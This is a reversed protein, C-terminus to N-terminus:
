SIKPAKAAPLCSAYKTNPERTRGVRRDITLVVRMGSITIAKCIHSIAVYNQRSNTNSQKVVRVEIDHGQEHVEIQPIHGSRLAEIVENVDPGKFDCKCGETAHESKYTRPDIQNIKCIFENCGTHDGQLYPPGLTSASYLLHVQQTTTLTGIVHPCWGMATMDNVLLGSVGWDLNFAHNTAEFGAKTLSDALVIISLSLEPTLPRFRTPPHYKGSYSDRDCFRLVFRHMEKLCSYVHTFTQKRQEASRGGMYEVRPQFYWKAIYAPLKTTTIWEQGDETKYIFDQYNFEIGPADFIHFLPGFYLWEQLFSRTDEFTKGDFDGLYLKEKDWGRREPYDSFSGEFVQLCVYPVKIPTSGGFSALHDM